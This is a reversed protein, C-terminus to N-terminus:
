VSPRLCRLLPCLITAHTSPSRAPIPQPPAPRSALFPSRVQVNGGFRQLTRGLLEVQCQVALRAAVSSKSEETVSSPADGGPPLVPGQQGMAAHLQSAMKGEAMGAVDGMSHDGAGALGGGALGSGMEAGRGMGLLDRLNFGAALSGLVGVGGLAGAMAGLAGFQGAGSMTAGGLTQRAKYLDYEERGTGPQQEASPGALAEELQPDALDAKHCSGSSEAGVMAAPEEEEEELTTDEAGASHQAQLSREEDDEDFDEACARALAGDGSPACAQRKVASPSSPSSFPSQEGTTSTTEPENDLEGLHNAGSATTRPRKRDPSVSGRMALNGNAPCETGSESSADTAPINPVPALPIGPRGFCKAEEEDEGFEILASSIDESSSCVSRASLTSLSSGHGGHSGSRGGKERRKRERQRRNQFWVQIQRASVDLDKGLQKRAEINPFQDCAFVSELVNLANPDIHWRPTPLAPSRAGPLTSTGERM